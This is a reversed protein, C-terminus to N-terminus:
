IHCNGRTRQGQSDEERSVSIRILFVLSRPHIPLSGPDHLSKGALATDGIRTCSIDKCHCAPPTQLILSLRM